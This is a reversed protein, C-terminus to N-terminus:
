GRPLGLALRGILDLQIEYAGTAVGAVLATHLQREYISDIEVGQEGMVEGAARAVAREATVMAVRATYASGGAPNGKTRDDMALYTLIRAAECATRARGLARRIRPVDTDVNDRAWETLSDLEVAASAYRPAGVREFALGIRVLNWGRNEEGLLCSAPVRVGSFFVEHFQHSGALAPIERVEIGPLDMPVLFISIGRSGHSEPDTRALLFCFDAIHAYSTWIKQGDIVYEDGERIARTRLSSLDSGALPESFGQCWHVDGARIRDLHYRKQEETGAALIMPAVWNVNMYQPGRPEGHSWLEEGLIIHRWTDNQGGHEVPWHPALWGREALARVFRSSFAIAEDTSIERTDNLRGDPVVDEVFERLENRFKRQEKDWGFEM